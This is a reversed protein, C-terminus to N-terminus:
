RNVVSRACTLSLRGALSQRGLWQAMGCVSTQMHLSYACVCLKNVCGKELFVLSQFYWFRLKPKIIKDCLSIVADSVLCGKDGTYKKCPM